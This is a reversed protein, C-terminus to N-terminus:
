RALDSGLGQRRRHRGGCAILDGPIKALISNDAYFSM